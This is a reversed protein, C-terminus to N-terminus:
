LLQQQKCQGQTELIDARIPKLHSTTESKLGQENQDELYFHPNQEKLTSCSLSLQRGEWARSPQQTDEETMGRCDPSSRETRSFSNCSRTIGSRKGRSYFWPHPKKVSPLPKSSPAKLFHFTFIDKQHYKKPSNLFEVALWTLWQPRPIALYLLKYPFNMLVLCIEVKICCGQTEEDNPWCQISLFTWQWKCVQLKVEAERRWLVSSPAYFHNWCCQLTPGVRSCCNQVKQWAGWLSQFVVHGQHSRGMSM